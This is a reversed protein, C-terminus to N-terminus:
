QQAIQRTKQHGNQKPHATQSRVQKQHNQPYLLGSPRKRCKGNNALVAMETSTRSKGHNETARVSLTSDRFDKPAVKSSKAHKPPEGNRTRTLDTPVAVCSVVGHTTPHPPCHLGGFGNENGSGCVFPRDRGRGWRWLAAVDSWMRIGQEVCSPAQAAVGPWM